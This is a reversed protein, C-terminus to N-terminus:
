EAADILQRVKECTELVSIHKGDSTQVACAAEPPLVRGQTRPTRLAVVSAPNVAITEHDLGTLEVLTVAIQEARPDDACSLLLLSLLVFFFPRVSAARTLSSSM